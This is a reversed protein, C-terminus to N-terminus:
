KGLSDLIIDLKVPAKGRNCVIRTVFILSLRSLDRACRFFLQHSYLVNSMGTERIADLREALGLNGLSKFYICQDESLSVSM